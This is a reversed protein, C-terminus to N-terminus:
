RTKVTYRKLEERPLAWGPELQAARSYDAYAATVNGSEENAVARIYMAVGPKKTRLDLAKQAMQSAGRSDGKDLSLVAKNLWAEPQLPDMRLAEDYDQTAGVADNRLMRIIGRNVHTAIIDEVTLAQTTLAYDCTQLSDQSIDRAEAAQYCSRAFGGGLTIVGATVPAATGLALLTATALTLAKM